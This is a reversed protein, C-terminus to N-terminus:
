EPIVCRTATNNNSRDAESKPLSRESTDVMKTRPDGLSANECV